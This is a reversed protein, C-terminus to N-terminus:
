KTFVVERTSLVYIMKYAVSLKNRRLHGIMEPCDVNLVRVRRDSGLVFDARPFPCLGNQEQQPVCPRCILLPYKCITHLMCGSTNFISLSPM